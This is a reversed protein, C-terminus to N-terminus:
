IPNAGRRIGVIVISFVARDGNSTCRGLIHNEVKLANRKGLAPGIKRLKEIHFTPQVLVFM